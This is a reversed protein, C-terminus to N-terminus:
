QELSYGRDASLAAWLFIEDPAKRVAELADQYTSVGTDAIDSALLREYYGVLGPELDLSLLLDNCNQWLSHTYALTPRQNDTAYTM